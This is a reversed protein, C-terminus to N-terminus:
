NHTKRAAAKVARRHHRLVALRDADVGSDRPGSPHQMTAGCEGCMIAPGTYYGGPSDEEWVARKGCIPCFYDTEFWDEACHYGKLIIKIKDAM